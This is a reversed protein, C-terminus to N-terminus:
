ARIVLERAELRRAPRRGPDIAMVGFRNGRRDSLGPVVAPGGQNGAARHNTEARGVSLPRFLRMARWETRIFDFLRAACQVPRVRWKLNRFGDGISPAFDAGLSMRCPPCPDLAASTEARRPPRRKM